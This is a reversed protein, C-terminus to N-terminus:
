LMRTCIFNGMSYKIQYTVQDRIFDAAYCILVLHSIHFTFYLADMATVQYNVKGFLYFSSTICTVLYYPISIILIWGFCDNIHDTTECVLLHYLKLAFLHAYCHKDKERKRLRKLDTRIFAYANSSAYSIVVFLALATIPYVQSIISLWSCFIVAYPSEDSKYHKTVM